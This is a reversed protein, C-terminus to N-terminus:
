GGWGYYFQGDVNARGCMRGHKTDAVAPYWKGGSRDLGPAKGIPTESFNNSLVIKFDM